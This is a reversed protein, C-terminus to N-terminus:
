EPSRGGPVAVWGREGDEPISPGDNRAVALDDGHREVEFISTQRKSRVAQGHGNDVERLFALLLQFCREYERATLKHVGASDLSLSATATLVRKVESMGLRRQRKLDQM